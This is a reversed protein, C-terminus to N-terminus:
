WPFGHEPDPIIQSRTLSDQILKVSPEAAQASGNSWSPWPLPLPPRGGSVFATGVSGLTGMKRHTGRKLSPTHLM